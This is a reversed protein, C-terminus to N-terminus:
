QSRVKAVLMNNNTLPFLHNVFKFIKLVNTYLQGCFAEIGVYVLIDARHSVTWL